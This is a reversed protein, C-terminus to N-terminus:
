GGGVSSTRTPSTIVSNESGSAVRGAAAPHPTRPAPHAPAASLLPTRGVPRRTPNDVAGPTRGARAVKSERLANIGVPPMNESTPTHVQEAPPAPSPQAGTLITSIPTIPSM